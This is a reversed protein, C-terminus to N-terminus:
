ECITWNHYYNIIDNRTTRTDILSKYIASYVEIIDGESMKSINCAQVIGYTTEDIKKFSANCGYVDNLEMVGKSLEEETEDTNKIPVQDTRMIRYLKDDFFSYDYTRKINLDDTETCTLSTFCLDEQKHGLQFVYNGTANDCISVSYGIGYYIAGEKKSLATDEFGAKSVDVNIVDVAHYAFIPKKGNMARIYDVTGIIYFITGLILVSAIIILIASILKNRKKIVDNVEIGGVIIKDCRTLKQQM